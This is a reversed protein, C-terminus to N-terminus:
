LNALLLCSLSEEGVFTPFWSRCLEHLDCSTTCLEPSTQTEVEDAVEEEVVLLDMQFKLINKLKKITKIAEEEDVEMWWSFHDTQGLSCSPMQDQTWRYVEMLSIAIIQSVPYDKHVRTTPIPSVVNDEDDSCTIDKLEPMDLDDPLQFADIFSSKGYTPSAAVNSPGVASFTNTSKPSNKGVTPVITGAANVENISNDSCDEFEASLDRYGASPNTQNGATDPQYNMTRTLSNIDFLWTPGSGAINPKNELFNVHLTEQIIRTRSNFVRFAKSSVSYGVLFGEDVKGNFKGLSDTKIKGKSSIKGGKPNRGFTVYGGNLEEFDFLYSMNGTMHRSFGSDIVGKDKLAHQPNGQAASVVLDKVATVRPPSNSTKPSHSHTLHRRIPTKSKTVSPKAHKPQTVQVFSPVIQPAKTKSEDDSDSVWDEIIPSTPRHTHSLDQAPKTPSLPLDSSPISWTPEPTAPRDEEHPKWWDQQLNVKLLHANRIDEDDSSHVQEDPATDDDMHLDAPPPPPPPQHPPSGPSTKSSDHRKKKKIMHDEHAKYSNTEWMRQHLIEKMDAEPLDRFRNRLLAQIAWDVADTVIEDVAKSVTLKLNEQVNPYATTFGEDIQKPNQQTSVDTAELDIHELNPGAHVIPSSQPQPVVDDGPNSRAQGEIQVGPNPGAKKPIQLTLLHIAVQEDSVKEKGNGQVEPLPQFKGSDPERIVVSPLRGRHADYVSKLSEEVARISPNVIPNAKKKGHTHLALNKKDKIFSHISQTFEEWMR